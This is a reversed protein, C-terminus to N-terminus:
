FRLHHFIGVADPSLEASTRSGAIMLVAGVGGLAVGGWLLKLNKGKLADCQSSAYIPNSNRLSVCAQYAGAPANGTSSDETRFVTLGLASMTVGAIGLGLGSWFRAGKGGSGPGATPRAPTQDAEDRAAKDIAAGIPGRPQALVPSAVLMISVVVSVARM